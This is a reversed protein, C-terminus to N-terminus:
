RHALWTRGNHWALYVRNNSLNQVLGAILNNAIIQSNGQTYFIALELQINHLRNNGEIKKVGHLEQGICNISKHILQQLIQLGISLLTLMPNIDAYANNGSQQRM